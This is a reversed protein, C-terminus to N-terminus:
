DRSTVVIVGSVFLVGAAGWAIVAPARDPEERVSLLSEDSESTWLYAGAVALGVAVAILWKGLTARSM